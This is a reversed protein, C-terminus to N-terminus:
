IRGGVSVTAAVDNARAVTVPLTLSLRAGLHEFDAAFTGGAALRNGVPMAYQQLSWVGELGLQASLHESFRYGGGLTGRLETLDHPSVLSPHEHIAHPGLGVAQLLAVKADFFAAGPEYTGQLTPCVMAHSMGLGREADGSPFIGALAADFRLAGGESSWLRRGLAVSLDGPGFANGTGTDLWYLPVDLSLYLEAPLRFQASPTIAFYSGARSLREFHFRAYSTSLWLQLAAPEGHGVLFPRLLAM